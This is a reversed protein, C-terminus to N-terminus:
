RLFLKYWRVNLELKKRRLFMQGTGERRGLGSDDSGSTLHWPRRDGAWTLGRLHVIDGSQSCILPMEKEKNTSYGSLKKLRDKTQGINPSM